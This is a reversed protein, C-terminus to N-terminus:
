VNGLFDQLLWSMQVCQALNLFFARIIDSVFDERKYIENAQKLLSFVAVTNVM